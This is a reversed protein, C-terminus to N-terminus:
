SLKGMRVTMKRNQAKIVAGAPTKAKMTTSYYRKVKLTQVITIPGAKMAKIVAPSLRCIKASVYLKKATFAKKVKKKSGFTKINCTVTKSKSGVPYTFKIKGSAQVLYISKTKAKVNGKADIIFGSGDPFDISGFSGNFDLSEDLTGLNVDDPDTTSGGTIVNTGTAISTAPNETVAVGLRMTAVSILKGAYGLHSMWYGYDRNSAPIAFYTGRPTQVSDCLVQNSDRFGAPKMTTSGNGLFFAESTANNTVLMDSVAPAFCEANFGNPLTVVSAASDGPTWKMLQNPRNGNDDHSVYYFSNGIIRFSNVYDVVDVNPDTEFLVSAVATGTTDYKYIKDGKNTSEPDAAMYYISTGVVTLGEPRTSWNSSTTPSVKVAPATPNAMDLSFLGHSNDSELQSNFYIKSGVVVFEEVEESQFQGNNVGTWQTDEQTAIEFRRLESNGDLYIYFGNYITAKYATDYINGIRTLVGSDSYKYLNRGDNRDYATFYLDTGSKVFGCVSQLSGLVKTQYKLYAGDASLTVLASATGDSTVVEMSMIDTTDTSVVCESNTYTGEDSDNINGILTPTGDFAVFYPEYGVASSRYLNVIAGGDATFMQNRRGWSGIAPFEPLTPYRAGYPEFDGLQTLNGIGDWLWLHPRSNNVQGMLIMKDGSTVISEFVAPQSSDALMITKLDTSNGVEQPVGWGGFAFLREGMNVFQTSYYSDSIGVFQTLNGAEDLGYYDYRSSWQSLSVKKAIVIVDANGYRRKGILRAGVVDASQADTVTTWSSTSFDYSKVLSDAANWGSAAQEAYLKGGMVALGSGSYSGGQPGFLMNDVLAVAGSNADFSWLSPDWDSNSTETGFFYVKGDLEIFNSMSESTSKVAEGNPTEIEGNTGNSIKYWYARNQNYVNASSDWYFLYDGAAYLAQPDGLKPATSNGVVYTAANTGYPATTKFIANGHDASTGIFYTVNGHNVFDHSYSPGSAKNIPLSYLSPSADAAEAPATTAVLGTVALTAATLTALIRKSLKM